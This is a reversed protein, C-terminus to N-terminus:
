RTRRRAIGPAAPKTTTLIFNIGTRAPRLPAQV